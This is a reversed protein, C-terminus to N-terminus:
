RWTPFRAESDLWEIFLQGQDTDFLCDMKESDVMLAKIGKRFLIHDDILALKIKHDNM